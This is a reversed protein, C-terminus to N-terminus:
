IWITNETIVPPEIEDLEMETDNIFIHLNEPSDQDEYVYITNIDM